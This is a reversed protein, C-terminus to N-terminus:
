LGALSILMSSVTFFILLGLVDVASTVFPGTSVAPDVNMRALVIPLLTGVTVAIVMALAMSIAISAGYIISADTFLLSISGVLIGYTAGLVIAM